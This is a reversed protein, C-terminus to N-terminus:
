QVTMDNIVNKVGHVDSVLKTALNKEADNKAKGALTVVGEKTQVSTNLASTSRHYLLTTKVLGTISADDISEIISGMKEGVADMKKGIINKDPRKAATSVTMENNVNEVGEVDQAYETTLDKQAMSTAEGRLTVTGDEASVETGTASVSEHYFLTSKVKAILLADSQAAPVELKGELKNEVSKVGPLSAVTEGALSKHSEESVTGTLTVAGDTSQVDIDDGKLYTQFAYSKKASSEIREDVDSAFLSVSTFFLSAATAALALRYTTKKMTSKGKM